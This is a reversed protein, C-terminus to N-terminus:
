REHCARAYHVGRARRVYPKQAARVHRSPARQDLFGCTNAEAVVFDVFWSGPALAGYEQLLQRDEIGEVGSADLKQRVLVDMSDYLAGFQRKRIAFRPVAVNWI